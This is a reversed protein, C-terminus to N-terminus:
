AAAAVDDVVELLQEFLARAESATPQGLTARLEASPEAAIMVALRAFAEERAARVRTRDTVSLRADLFAAVDWALAAHRTEDRAITKMASRVDANGAHEAQWTALLAAWTEFVCGEVANEIAMAGLTRPAAMAVVFPRPSGGFRTALVTMTEAHRVEDEAARRARRRLSEPAGAARLEHELRRFADVSAAELEASEAFHGALTAADDRTGLVFGEPRRGRNPHPNCGPTPPTHKVGMTKVEGTKTVLYTTVNKEDCTRQITHETEWGDNTQKFDKAACSPLVAAASTNEALTDVLTLAAEEPTDIPALFAATATGNVVGIEDGRLFVLYQGGRKAKAGSLVKECVSKDKANACADGKSGAIVIEHKSPDPYYDLRLELYDVAQAPELGPVLDGGCRQGYRRETPTQRITTTTVTAPQSTVTPTTTPVPPPPEPLPEKKCGLVALTFTASLIQFTQRRM